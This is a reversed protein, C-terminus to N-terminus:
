RCSFSYKGVLLINSNLNHYIGACNILRSGINGANGHLFIITASNAKAQKIFYAHLTVRDKTKIYVTEYPLNYISPLAVKSRHTASDPFFLFQDQLFYFITFVMTLFIILSLLGSIFYFIIFCSLVSASAIYLLPTNYIV